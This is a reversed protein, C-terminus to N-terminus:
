QEEWQPNAFTAVAALLGRTIEAHLDLNLTELTDGTTHYNPNLTPAPAGPM